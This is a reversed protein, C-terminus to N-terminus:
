SVGEAYFFGGSRPRDGEAYLHRRKGSQLRTEKDAFGGPDATRYLLNHLDTLM